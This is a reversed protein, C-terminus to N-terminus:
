RPIAAAGVMESKTWVTLCGIAVAAPLLLLALRLFPLRGDAHMLAAGLLGIGLCAAVLALWQPANALDFWAAIGAAFAVALWPARDFGATGLFRELAELGSSLRNRTRWHRHQLAAGGPPASDEVGTFVADSAM